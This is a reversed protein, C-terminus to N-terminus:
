RTVVTRKQREKRKKGRTMAEYIQWCCPHIGLCNYKSGPDVCQVPIPQFYIYRILWARPGYQSFIPRLDQCSLPGLCAQNILSKNCSQFSGKFLIQRSFIAVWFIEHFCHAAFLKFFAHEELFERIEFVFCPM